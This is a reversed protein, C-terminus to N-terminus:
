LGGLHTLKAHRNVTNIYSSESLINSKASLRANM